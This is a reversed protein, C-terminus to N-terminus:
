RETIATFVDNPVRGITVHKAGEGAPITTIVELQDLSVLSVDNSRTNAIVCIDNSENIASWSPADGVTVTEILELNDTSVIAAYDSARGAICLTTEDDTMALGHHPADFDWDEETVGAKIPLQREDTVTASATDFAIVDHTNSLQAYISRGDKTVVFPRVGAEFFFQDVQQLTDADVVTITYADEDADREAGSRLMNGLSAAYVLNGDASTHVDHPWQGTTFQGIKEGTESSLVEVVNGGYILASVYLREGDPSLTMHDARLGSVPTRWLLDGSALDFAAVDSVFGRAVFLVRGDRSLDTDQAYNPGAIAEVLLQGFFQSPDRFLSVQAGDPIVNITALLEQQELDILSVTGVLANAIFAVETSESTLQNSSSVAQQGVRSEQNTRWAGVIIAVLLLALLAGAWYKRQM